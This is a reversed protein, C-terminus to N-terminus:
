QIALRRTHNTLFVGTIVIMGGLLMSPLIPESLILAGFVVGFVPVLNTFVVTRAPGITKVGESYWIFAVATGFVGLYLIAGINTLSFMSSTLQPIEFLAGVSLLVAGFLTAYTTAAIPSLGKLAFRSTITYAVWSCVALLMFGEGLEFTQSIAEWGNLLQGQTVIISVGVLAMLIGTWRKVGLKERLIFAVILATLIPSLSVILATKGAPIRELAALFFINYAFVGTLGLGITAMLQRRNLKPLGGEFRWAIAMLIGFAIIFRLASITLHPMAQALVRGSIFTGGWFAAVCVLKLQPLLRSFTSQPEAQGVTNASLM